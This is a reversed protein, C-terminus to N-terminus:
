AGIISRIKHAAEDYSYKDLDKGLIDRIEALAEAPCVLDVMHEICTWREDVIRPGDTKWHHAVKM